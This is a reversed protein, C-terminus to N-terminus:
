CLRGGSRTVPNPHKLLSRIAAALRKPFSGIPSPPVSHTIGFYPTARVAGSPAVTGAGSSADETVLTTSYKRLRAATCLWTGAVTQGIVGGGPSEPLSVPDGSADSAPSAPTESAFSAAELSPASSALSAPASALSAAASAAGSPLSAACSYRASAKEPSPAPTLHPPHSLLLAPPKGHRGPGQRRRMTPSM